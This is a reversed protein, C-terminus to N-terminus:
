GGTKATSRRRSFRTRLIASRAIAWRCMPMGIHKRWKGSWRCRRSERESGASGDQPLAGSTTDALRLMPFLSVM